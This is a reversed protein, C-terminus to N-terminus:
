GELRVVGGDSAMKFANKWTRYNEVFWEELGTKRAFEIFKAENAEFEKALQKCTDTDLVGSENPYNILLIFPIDDGGQPMREEDLKWADWAQELTLGSFAALQERFLEHGRYTGAVFSTNQDYEYMGGKHGGEQYWFDENDYSVSDYSHEDRRPLRILEGDEWENWNKAKRIFKIKTYVTVDIMGDHYVM